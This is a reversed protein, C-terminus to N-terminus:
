TAEGKEAFSEVNAEYEKRLDAALLDFRDPLHIEPGHIWRLTERWFAPEKKAAPDYNGNLGLQQRKQRWKDIESGFDEILSTLSEKTKSLRKGDYLSWGEADRPLTYAWALLRQDERAIPLVESLGHMEKASWAKKRGFLGSLWSQAEAYQIAGETDEAHRQPLPGTDESQGQGALIEETGGQPVLPPKRRDTIRQIDRRSVGEPYESSVETDERHQSALTGGPLESTDESHENPIRTIHEAQGAVLRIFSVEPLQLVRLAEEIEDLPRRLQNSLERASLRRGEKKGDATLWGARPRSQRSCIDLLMKWIGWIAAGHEEAMVNSWGSGGHKNPAYTNACRQILRSKASEFNENWDVVQYLPLNAM